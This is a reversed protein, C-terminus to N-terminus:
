RGYLIRPLWLALDPLFFLLMILVLPAALFPVIGRYITITKIDPAQAQVVFLNMGVPPHILGVEVVIVVIIAFWVSDYGYSTILPLFVPVTILIMGIAELFCGMVIYAVVVFLLVLPGPLALTRAQEVLLAPLQTQVMFYAFINAGIIIVFLMCSTVVAAEISDVLRRFPLQRRVVGLLIAGLAGVSAAETPSFIGAYIGGITIVFLTVFQWPGRLAAVRERVSARPATPAADPARYAVLLAVAIYLSTLLLGPVLGAAFLKPVSQQAIAGYIVLIISPPFLIGLTGGAAIAGTALADSYGAKRMERLSIPTMTAATAISSGCVAGFCASAGITAVALGGRLNSMMVRAAKFLDASLGTGSAVGGTLIFLPIVSLTYLSAMDFPAQGLTAMSSSWGALAANGLFGVLALAAWVPLRLLLLVFLAFIGFLGIVAPSM